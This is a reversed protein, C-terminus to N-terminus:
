SPVYTYTYTDPLTWRIAFIMAFFFLGAVVVPAILWFLLLGVGLLAVCAILTIAVTITALRVCFGILRLVFKTGSHVLFELARMDGTPLERYGFPDFLTRALSALSFLSALTGITLSIRSLVFLLGRSYHWFIYRYVFRVSEM